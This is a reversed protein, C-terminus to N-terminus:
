PEVDERAGILVSRTLPGLLEVGAVDLPPGAAAPAFGGSVITGAGKRAEPCPGDQVSGTTSRRGTM